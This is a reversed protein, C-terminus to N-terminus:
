EWRVKSGNETVDVHLQQAFRAKMREDHSIAVIRMDRYMDHITELAKCYGEIGEEDLGAPEDIFLMGLQLGVRSAKLIALAFIVSLSCRTKQGGSRALYPLEGNDIDIIVIDLTAVEKAKNSKLQRETRFELRMRGGTMQGLIENASAELEPVIDRIIQHPIGDQGFAESLVQLKAARDATENVAKVTEQLKEQKGELERLKEEIGGLAKTLGSLDGEVSILNEELQKKSKRVNDANKLGDQLKAKKDQLVFIEATLTNIDERLEETQKQTSELYARAAPLQKYQEEQGSRESLKARITHIKGLNIELMVLEEDIKKRNSKKEEISLTISGIREARIDIMRKDSEYVQIIQKLEHFRRAQQNIKLHMESDYDLATIEHEIDDLKQKSMDVLREADAFKGAVEKAEKLFACQAKEIDVCNVAQLIEAQRKSRTVREEAVWVAHAQEQKEYTLKDLRVKKKGIEELQYEIGDLENLEDMMGPLKELKAQLEVVDSHLKQDEFELTKIESRIGALQRRKDEARKEQEGLTILEGQLKQYEIHINELETERKLFDETAKINRELDSLKNQKENRAESKRGFDRDAQLLEMEANEIAALKTRVSDMDVKLYSLTKQAMEIKKKTIQEETRADELVSLQAELVSADEKLNKLERNTDRLSEKAIGEMLEYMGLGLLSALVSMRDEPKAEMFRGYQDQMILVCSRFTDADMGLLDVIKQQTDTLRECSLDEWKYEQSGPNNISDESFRCHVGILKALALTAKGSRQRTRTVRYTSEGLVFTFSISGSKEGSRIWGTLEGERPQEYLCDVLADMFLSSKGSGNVGNVMAFFIDQFSLTEEAYSRYNRVSIEVPLFIGTQGGAPQSAEIKSIIDDAASLIGAMDATKKETLYRRLCDWVSLSEHMRERNVSATVKEPRIEAVYYAGAAYLDRELKKKDLAKETESDCTYLVRVVKDQVKGFHTFGNMGFNIYTEVGDTDWRCTLFERAPTLVFKSNTLLKIYTPTPDRITTTEIVEINHMWFGHEHGEDNFTFADISGSYYVPKKCVEVRQAKHIHGLCVLDFASNDLAAAELVIENAQFVHQGNDMECGVVTHHAMLVSPIGPDLQASLGEVIATLQQTFIRNEEEASLGPFQTRFHGKDFGPLGAIQILENNRTMIKLLEPKSIIYADVLFDLTEFQEANDHNPTGYLVITPAEMALKNIYDAAVRLEVNSRDSWVKAQHFVDGAVLIIDPQEAKATEVLVDLCKMTNAMREM